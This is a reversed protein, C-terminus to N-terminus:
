SVIIKRTCCVVCVGGCVAVTYTQCYTFILLIISLIIYHLWLNLIISMDTM